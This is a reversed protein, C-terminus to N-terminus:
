FSRYWHPAALRSKDLNPRAGKEWVNSVVAFLSSSGPSTVLATCSIIPRGRVTGLIDIDYEQFLWSDDPQELIQVALEFGDREALSDHIRM